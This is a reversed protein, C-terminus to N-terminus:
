NPGRYQVQDRIEDSFVGPQQIERSIKRSILYDPLRVLSTLSPFYSM